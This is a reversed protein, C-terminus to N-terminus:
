GSIYISTECIDRPWFCRPNDPHGAILLRKDFRKAREYEIAWQADSIREVGAQDEMKPFKNFPDMQGRTWAHWLKAAWNGALSPNPARVYLVAKTSQIDFQTKYWQFTIAWPIFNASNKEIADKANTLVTHRGKKQTLKRSGNIHVSM